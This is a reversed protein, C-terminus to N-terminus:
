PCTDFGETDLIPAFPQNLPRHYTKSINRLTDTVRLNVEVDTTGGAFLWYNDFGSLGCADIVKVVLEINAAEFFWFTGTDGTLPAAIAAGAAGAATRWDAEVRFRGGGLCLTHAGPVCSGGGLFPLAPGEPASQTTIPPSLETGAEEAGETCDLFEGDLIPAFSEAQPNQYTKGRGTATDFVFLEVELNTLGASYSWIRQNFGCGDVIKTLVEVNAPDFFWFYGSDGTLAVGHARGAAGAPTAWDGEVRYRGGGLCLGYDDAVCPEPDWRSNVRQWFQNMTLGAITGLGLRARERALTRRLAPSGEAEFADLIRNLDGAMDTTVRAGGGALLSGLGDVWADESLILDALLTPRSVFTRLIAPSLTDYLAAYYRGAPTSAMVEDRVARLTAIADVPGGWAHLGPAGDPAVGGSASSANPLLGALSGTEAPSYGLLELDRRWASLTTFSCDDTYAMYLLKFPDALQAGVAGTLEILTVYDGHFFSLGVLGNVSGAAVAAPFAYPSGNLSFTFPIAVNSPRSLRVTLPAVGSHDMPQPHMAIPGQVTLLRGSEGLLRIWIPDAGSAGRSEVRFDDFDIEFVHEFVGGQSSQFGSDVWLGILLPAATASFDPQVPADTATFEGAVLDGLTAEQWVQTPQNGQWSFIKRSSVFKRGSQVLLVQVGIARNSYFSPSEGEFHARFRGSVTFSTLAGDRSPDYIAAPSAVGAVKHSLLPATHRHRVTLYSNDYSFHVIEILPDPQPVVFNWASLEHDEFVLELSQAEIASPRGLRVALLVLLAFIRLRIKHALM